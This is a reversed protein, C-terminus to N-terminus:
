FDNVTIYQKKSFKEFMSVKLSRTIRLIDSNFQDFNREGGVHMLTYIAIELSIIEDLLLILEENFADISKDVTTIYEDSNTIKIDSKLEKISINLEM